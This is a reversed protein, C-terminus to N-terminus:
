VEYVSLKTENVDLHRSDKTRKLETQVILRLQRARDM